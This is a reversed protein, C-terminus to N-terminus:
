CIGALLKRRFRRYRPLTVHPPTVRACEIFALGGELILVRGVRRPAQVLLRLACLRKRLGELLEDLVPEDDAVFRKHLVFDLAVLRQEAYIVEDHAHM